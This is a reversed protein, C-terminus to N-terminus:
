KVSHSEDSEKRVFSRTIYGRRVSRTPIATELLERNNYELRKRPFTNTFANGLLPQTYESNLIQQRAASTIESGNALLPQKDPEVTRAELLYEM